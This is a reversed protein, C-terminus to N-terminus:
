FVSPPCEMEKMSNIEYMEGAINLAAVRIMIFLILKQYLVFVARTCNM